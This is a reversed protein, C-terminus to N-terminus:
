SSRVSDQGLVVLPDASPAARGLTVLIRHQGIAEPYRSLGWAPHNNAHRGILTNARRSAAPASPNSWSVQICSGKQRQGCRDLSRWKDRQSAWIGFPRFAASNDEPARRWDQNSISASECKVSRVMENAPRKRPHTIMIVGPYTRRCVAMNAIGITDKM